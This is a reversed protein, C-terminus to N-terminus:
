SEVEGVYPINGATWAEVFATLEGVTLLHDFEITALQGFLPLRITTVDSRYRTVPPMDAEAWGNVEDYEVLAAVMDENSRSDGKWSLGRAAMLAKLENRARRDYGSM